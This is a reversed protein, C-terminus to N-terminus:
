PHSGGQASRSSGVLDALAHLQELVPVTPFLLLQDCGADEYAQVYERIELPSTLLGDAIRPAFAGTFAYYDLLYDRGATAADGLAYYAMSRIQPEGVRGADAWAARVEAVEREFVRPPSGNHIWGDALQAVRSFSSGAGGGVLVPPAGPHGPASVAGEDLVSRMAALQETLRDGRGAKAFESRDYDDGRAGISMGITLRGPALAHLSVVQKALTSTERLPSILICTLLEIRETVAAAAALAVMPEITEYVVRDLTALAAFPGRDADRAWATLLEPPCGPVATPLGVGLQM